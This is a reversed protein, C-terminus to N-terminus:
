KCLDEKSQEKLKSLDFSYGYTGNERNYAKGEVFKKLIKQNFNLSPVNDEAVISTVSEYGSEILDKFSNLVLMEAYGANLTRKNTYILEMQANKDDTRGTSYIIFSLPQVKKDPLLKELIYVSSNSDDQFMKSILDNIKDLQKEEDGSKEHSKLIIHLKKSM